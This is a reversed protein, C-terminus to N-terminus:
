QFVHESHIYVQASHDTIVACQESTPKVLGGGLGKWNTHLIYFAGVSTGIRM